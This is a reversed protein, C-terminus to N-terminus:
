LPATVLPPVVLAEPHEIQAAPENEDAAAAVQEVHWGPVYELWPAGLQVLQAAPVAREVAPAVICLWHRAQGAPEAAAAPEAVHVGQTAPRKEAAPAPLQEIQGAPVKEKAFAGLQVM